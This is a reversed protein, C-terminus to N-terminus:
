RPGAKDRLRTVRHMGMLTVSYEAHITGGCLDGPEFEIAEEIYGQRELRQTSAAVAAESYKGRFHEALRYQHMPSRNEEITLLVHSDQRHHRVSVDVLYGGYSVAGLILVATGTLIYRRM